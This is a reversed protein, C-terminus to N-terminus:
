REARISKEQRRKETQRKRECPPCVRASNIAKKKFMLTKCDLCIVLLNKGGSHQETMKLTTKGKLELVKSALILQPDDPIQDDEIEKIRNEVCRRLDKMNPLLSEEISLSKIPESLWPNRQSNEINM